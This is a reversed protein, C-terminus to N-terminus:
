KKQGIREGMLISTELGQATHALIDDDIKVADKKLLMITTSGGFKFYGKEAGKEVYSEAAYTQIISGVCTAGVEVLVMDDFHDSKFLTLERKNECYLKTIKKLAIPSVSYYHGNIKKPRSPIGSDPFHFRHYDSPCLRVIICIGQDYHDALEQDQLLDSLAYSYGKIQILNDAEINDWALIKGDAPSVLIHPDDIIPRAEPKLERTFFENFTRYSHIDEKKAELMNIQMSAIFREIKRQSIPLDQLWGYFSSFLKRKLFSELLFPGTKSEYVWKLYKDGFILESKIDGAKRDM